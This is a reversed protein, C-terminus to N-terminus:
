QGNPESLRIKVNVTRDGRAIRIVGGDIRVSARRPKYPAAVYRPLEGTPAPKVDAIDAPAIPKGVEVKVDSLVLTSGQAMLKVHQIAITNKGERVFPTVDWVFRYADMDPVAYPVRATRIEDSFDPAYCIRWRNGSIWPADSGDLMTFELPKNLLHEALLQHGNVDVVIWPNSGALVKWDIRAKLSLRVQEGAKAEGQEFRFVSVHPSKSRHEDVPLNLPEANAGTVVM